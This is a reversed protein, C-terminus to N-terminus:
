FTVDLQPFLEEVKRVVYSKGEGTPANIALNIPNKTYTSLLTLYVQKCLRDDQKVEKAVVDLPSHFFSSVINTSNGQNEKDEVTTRM